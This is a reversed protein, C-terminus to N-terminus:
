NARWYCPAMDAFDATKTLKHYGRAELWPRLRENLVNEVYVGDLGFEVSLAEADDMIEALRGSGPKSSTLSAVDMTQVPQGDM